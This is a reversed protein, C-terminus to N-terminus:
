RKLAALAAFPGRVDVPGPVAATPRSRRRRIAALMAPAPPGFMEPALGGGPVIRFGLQRLIIPLFEVRVSLRSGLDRPLTITGRRTLYGLEGAVREAIDLRLMVPGTAVWGMAAAFGSPWDQKAPMSVISAEPLAPVTMGHALAWLRARMSAPRPKLMMPVFLALRGSRVGIKRLKPRITPALTEEDVGPIIGLTEGLRHLPGRMDPDAAAAETAVFLPALDARIRGDVFRQLRVRLREREVGDLFESDLVQVRPRSVADGLVLRAVPAGEWTLAHHDTFDLEGDPATEVAVVRRPIEERL